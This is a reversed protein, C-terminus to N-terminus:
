CNGAKWGICCPTVAPDWFWYGLAFAAAVMCCYGVALFFPAM